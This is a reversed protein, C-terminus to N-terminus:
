NKRGGTGGNQRFREMMEQISKKLEETTVDGDNNGDAEEIMTKSRGELNAMEDKDIKGDANTDYRSM